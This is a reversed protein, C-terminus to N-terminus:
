IGYPKKIRESVWIPEGFDKLVWIAKLAKWFGMYSKIRENGWIPIKL